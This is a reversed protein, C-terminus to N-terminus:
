DRRRKPADTTKFEALTNLGTTRDPVGISSLLLNHAPDLKLSSDSAPIWLHIWYHGQSFAPSLLTESFTLPQNTELKGFDVHPLHRRMHNQGKNDDIALYVTHGVSIRTASQNTFTLEIHMQSENGTKFSFIARNLVIRLEDGGDSHSPPLPSYDCKITIEEQGEIQCRPAESSDDAHSQVAPSGSQYWNRESGAALSPARWKGPLVLVVLAVASVAIATPGSAKTRAVFRKM